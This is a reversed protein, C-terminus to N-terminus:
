GMAPEHNPYGKFLLGATLIVLATDRRQRGLLPPRTGYALQKVRGSSTVINRQFIEVHCLALVERRVTLSHSYYHDRSARPKLMLTGGM